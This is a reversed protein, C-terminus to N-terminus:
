RPCCSPKTRPSRTPSSSASSTSLTSCRFGERVRVDDTQRKVMMHAIEFRRLLDADDLLAAALPYLAAHETQDHVALADLIQGILTAEGTTTAFKEFLQEVRRHDARILDTGTPM